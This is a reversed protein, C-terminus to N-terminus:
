KSYRLAERIRSFRAREEPTPRMAVGLFRIPDQGPIRQLSFQYMATAADLLTEGTVMYLGDYRLGNQPLYLNEKQPRGAGSRLVRVPTQRRRAEMMYKTNETAKNLAGSTGCYQITNGNDQNAYGSTGLVISLAGKEKERYIGAEMAGHAGDLVACIQYPWWQGNVLHGEGVFNAAM